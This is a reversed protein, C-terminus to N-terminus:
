LGHRRLFDIVRATYEDTHREHASVHPTGEVHWFECPGAAGSRLAHADAVSLYIDGSCHILFVPRPALRGIAREPAVASPHAGHLRRWVRRLSPQVLPALPGFILQCRRRLAQELSPYVGDAVVVAIRPCEAAALIAVAGGMSLGLAAVPLAAAEPRTDLWAVAGLLDDVEAHGIGCRRGESEGLARFDFLLAHYGARHLAPLCPLMQSRNKPYGHCLVVTGRATEAQEAPVWWGSLRVGDRAPFSVSEFDLGFAAPTHEPRRRRPHAAAVTAAAAGGLVAASAVGGWLLWRWTRPIKV